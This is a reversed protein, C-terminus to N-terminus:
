REITITLSEGNEFILLYYGADLFNGSKNTGDWLIPGELEKLVIGNRNIIKILGPEEIYFSDGIGDGNPSLVQDCDDKAQLSIPDPFVIDCGENNSVSIQYLGDSIGIFVNEDSVIQEGTTIEQLTYEFGELANNDFTIQHVDCTEEVNIELEATTVCKSDEKVFLEVSALRLTDKEETFAPNHISGFYIGADENSLIPINFFPVETTSILENDKFWYYINDEHLTEEKVRLEFAVGENLTTDEEISLPFIHQPFARIDTAVSDVYLPILDYFTLFNFTMDLRELKPFDSYDQLTTKSNLFFSLLVLTNKVSSLDPEDDIGMINMELIEFTPSNITSFDPFESYNPNRTVDLQNLNVLKSFDGIITDFDSGDLELWTTNSLELLPSINTVPVGHLNITDSILDQKTLDIQTCNNVLAQPFSDCLSQALIPDEIDIFNQAVLLGGFKLIFLILFINKM